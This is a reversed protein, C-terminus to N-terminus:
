LEHAIIFTDDHLWDHETSLIAYRKQESDYLLDMPTITDKVGISLTEITKDYHAKLNKLLESEPREGYSVGNDRYSMQELYAGGPVTVLSFATPNNNHSALGNSIEISETYENTLKETYTNENKDSTDDVTSKQSFTITINKVLNQMAGSFHDSVQVAIIKLEVIGSITNNGVPMCHGEANEYDDTLVSTTEISASEYEPENGESDIVNVDFTTASNVWSTGNWYKNGVRFSLTMKKIWCNEIDSSVFIAGQSFTYPINSRIIIPEVSSNWGLYDIQMYTSWSFTHKLSVEDENCSDLLMMRTRNNTNIFEHQNKYERGNWGEAHYWWYKGGGYTSQLSFQKAIYRIYSEDITLISAAKNIPSTVTVSKKGPIFNISNDTGSIEVSSLSMLNGSQTTATVTTGNNVYAVIDSYLIKHYNLLSTESYNGCGTFLIDEGIMRATLGFFTCVDQLVDFYTSDSSFTRTEDDFDIYNLMSFSTTLFPMVGDFHSPLYVYGVDVGMYEVCIKLLRAVSMSDTDRVDVFKCQLTTLPCIIPIEKEEVKGWPAEYSEANIYGCFLVKDTDNDIVDVYHEQLTSPILSKWDIGDTTFGIYGSQTRVPAFFDDSSDEGTTLPQSSPQLEIISGQYGDEHINVCLDRERDTHVWMQWKIERM